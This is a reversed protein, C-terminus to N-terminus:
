GVSASVRPGFLFNGETFSANVICGLCLVGFNQSGYHGDVDAVIGLFPIIKGEVSPEWGNANARDTSNLDTNYYSYGIFVNGSPIQASALGAFLLVIFASFVIKPM